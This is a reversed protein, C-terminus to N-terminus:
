VYSLAEYKPAEKHLYTRLNGQLPDGDKGPKLEFIRFFGNNPLKDYQFTM